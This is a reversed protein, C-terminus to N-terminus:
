YNAFKKIVLDGGGMRSNGGKGMLGARRGLVRNEFVRMGNLFLCVVADWLIKMVM